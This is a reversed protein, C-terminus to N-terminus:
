VLLDTTERICSVQRGAAPGALLDRGRDIMRTVFSAKRGMRQAVKFKGEGRLFVSEMVERVPNPLRAMLDRLLARDELEILGDLQGYGEDRGPITTPDLDMRTFSAVVKKRCIISIVARDMLVWVFSELRGCSGDFRNEASGACPKTILGAVVQHAMEEILHDVENRSRGTRRPLIRVAARAAMPLLQHYVESAAAESDVVSKPADIVCYYNELAVQATALGAKPEHGSRKGRLRKRECMTMTVSERTGWFGGLVTPGDLPFFECLRRQLMNSFGQRNKHFFDINEPVSFFVWGEM